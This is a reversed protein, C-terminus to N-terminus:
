STWMPLLSTKMMRLATAGAQEGLPEAVVAMLAASMKGSNAQDRIYKYPIAAGTAICTGVGRDVTRDHSAEGGERVEYRITQTDRDIIPDVWVKPKGPKKSLTWSAVLPM